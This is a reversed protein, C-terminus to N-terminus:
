DEKETEDALQTTMKSSEPEILKEEAAEESEKTAKVGSSAYFYLYCALGVFLIMSVENQYSGAWGSGVTVHEIAGFSALIAIFVGMLADGAILGSGILLGKDLKAKLLDKDKTVKTVIWCVLGGIMIPTSLSLPLYLGIACTLSSVGFLEVVLSIFMGIFVLIWPLNEEMVGQIVIAMLSAQPAPMAPSGLHYIEDLKLITWGIFICSAFVGLMQAVQVRRPTAGVLFGTKLDQSTDGAIAIAICVIAGVTLSAINGEMGTFGTFKLIITTALLTAITMGSVPNSSSGVIGVIRSSVTSFFFAFIVVLLAGIIGIKPLLGIKVSGAKDAHSLILDTESDSFGLETLKNALDDLVFPKTSKLAAIHELKVPDTIESKLSEITGSNIELWEVTDGSIPLYPLATILIAIFIAGGIVWFMSIDQATRAKDEEVGKFVRSIEQVALKFSHAIVPMSKMLSCLGGFAVAGAGIYRIYNTWVDYPGMDKILMTAPAIPETLFSGLYSILPILVFWSLLGGALMISSVEIGIIFGVGLLAPLTDFGLLGNNVFKIHWEPGSKWLGLAECFFKYLGGLGIASFVVLAQSGGKDGAILVEACATGEPYLLKGHEQVILFRRLPVMFLVGLVGGLVSMVFMQLITPNVKWIILAPITFIVGAALSEAAAALNQVINNELITGRRLVGKLIGMSIVSAPITASVTMGVRLGLYANAVGFVIALIIGLGISLFTFEPLVQDATVYPVYKDGETLKRSM